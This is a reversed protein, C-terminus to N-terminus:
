KKTDFTIAEDLVALDDHADIRQGWTIRGYFNALVSKVLNPDGYVVDQTLITDPKTDLFGSCSSLALMGATCAVLIYKRKM